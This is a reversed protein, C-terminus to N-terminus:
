VRNVRNRGLLIQTLKARLSAGTKKQKKSGGAASGSPRNPATSGEGSSESSKQAPPMRKKGEANSRKKPSQTSSDGGLKIAEPNLSQALQSLPANDGESDEDDENEEDEGDEEDEGGGAPKRTNKGTPLLMWDGRERGYDQCNVDWSADFAGAGYSWRPSHDDESLGLPRWKGDPEFAERYQLRSYQALGQQAENHEDAVIAEPNRRKMLTYLDPFQTEKHGPKIKQYVAGNGDDVDESTPPKLAFPDNQTNYTKWKLFGCRDFEDYHKPNFWDRGPFLGEIRGLGRTVKVLGEPKKVTTRDDKIRWAVYLDRVITRWLAAMEKVVHKKGKTSMGEPPLCLGGMVKLPIVLEKKRMRIWEKFADEKVQERMCQEKIKRLVQKADAPKTYDGDFHLDKDEYANLEEVLWGMVNPTTALGTMAGFLEPLTKTKLQNIREKRTAEPMKSQGIDDLLRIGITCNAIVVSFDRYENTDKSIISHNYNMGADPPAPGTAAEGNGGAGRFVYDSFSSLSVYLRRRDQVQVNPIKEPMACELEPGEPRPRLTWRTDDTLNADNSWDLLREWAAFGQGNGLFRVLHKADDHRQKMEAAAVTFDFYDTEQQMTVYDRSTVFFADGLKARAERKANRDMGDKLLADIGGKARALDPNVTRGANQVKFQEYKHYALRVRKEHLPHFWQAFASWFIAQDSRGRAVGWNKKPKTWADLWEDKGPDSLSQSSKNNFRRQMWDEFVPGSPAYRRAGSGLQEASGTCYPNGNADFAVSNLIYETTDEPYFRREIEEPTRDRRCTLRFDPRDHKQLLARAYQRPWVHKDDRYEELEKSTKGGEPEDFFACPLEYAKPTEFESNPDNDYFSDLETRTLGGTFARLCHLKKEGVTKVCNDVAFPNWNVSVFEKLQDVTMASTNTKALHENTAVLLTAFVADQEQVLQARSAGDELFYQPNENKWKEYKESGPKGRGTASMYMDRQTPNAMDFYKKSRAGKARPPKTKPLPEGNPGKLAPPRSGKSADRRDKTEKEVKALQEMASRIRGMVTDPIPGTAKKARASERKDLEAQIQKQMEIEKESALLDQIMHQDQVHQDQVVQQQMFPPKLREEPVRSNGRVAQDDQQSAQQIQMVFANAVEDSDSDSQDNMDSPKSNAM